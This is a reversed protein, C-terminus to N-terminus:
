YLPSNSWQLAKNGIDIAGHYGNNKNLPLGDPGIVKYTWHLHIGTSWGTNGMIGVSDGAGVYVGNGVVTRELHALISLRRHGQNNYPLSTIEVFTGYGDPDNGIRVYGDHPAYVSYGKHGPIRPAFDIGNHGTHDNPQGYDKDNESFKQTIRFTPRIPLPSYIM